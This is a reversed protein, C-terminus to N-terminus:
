KVAELEKLKNTLGMFLGEDRTELAWDIRFLLMDKDTVSTEINLHLTGTDCVIM